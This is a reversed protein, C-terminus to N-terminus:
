EAADIAAALLDRGECSTGCAADLVRLRERAAPLDGRQVHLEGLYQNAGLHDPAIELARRYFGAARDLDGSKRLSYGLLSLADADDPEDAVLVKLIAIAEDYRAAGALESAKVLDEAFESPSLRIYDVAGVPSALALCLVTWAAARRTM